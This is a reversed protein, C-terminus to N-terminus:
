GERMTAALIGARTATRRALPRPERRQTRTPPTFSPNRRTRSM